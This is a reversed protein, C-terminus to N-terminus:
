TIVLNVRKELTRGKKDCVNKKQGKPQGLPIPASCNSRRKLEPPSPIPDSLFRIAFSRERM